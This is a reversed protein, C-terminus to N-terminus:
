SSFYGGNGDSYYTLDNCYGIVTEWGVWDTGTVNYTGCAGDAFVRDYNNGLTFDGCGVNVFSPM